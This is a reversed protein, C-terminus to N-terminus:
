GNSAIGLVLLGGEINSNAFASICETVNQVINNVQSGTLTGDPSLKGAQKRDFHQGEVEDDKPRTLFSWYHRPNEFVERPALM